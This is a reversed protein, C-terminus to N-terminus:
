IGYNQVENLSQFTLNSDNDHTISCSPQICESTILEHLHDDQQQQPENSDTTIYNIYKSSSYDVCNENTSIHSADEIRNIIIEQLDDSYQQNLENPSSQQQSQEEQKLQQEEENQKEQQQSQLDSEEQDELNWM